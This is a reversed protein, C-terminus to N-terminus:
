LDIYIFFHGASYFMMHFADKCISKAGKKLVRSCAGMTMINWLSFTTVLKLENFSCIIAYCSSWKHSVIYGGIKTQSKVLYTREDLRRVADKEFAMKTGKLWRPDIDTM